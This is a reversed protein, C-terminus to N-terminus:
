GLLIKQFLKSHVTDPDGVITMSGRDNLTVVSFSQNPNMDEPLQGEAMLSRTYEDPRISVVHNANVYVERLSKSKSSRSDYFDYVEVLKVVM